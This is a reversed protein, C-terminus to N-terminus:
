GSECDRWEADFRCHEALQLLFLNIDAESTAAGLKTDLVRVVIQRRLSENSESRRWLLDALASAPELNLLQIAEDHGITPLLSVKSNRARFRESAM